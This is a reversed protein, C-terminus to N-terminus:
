AFEPATRVVDPWRCPDDGHQALFAYVWRELGFAICVSHMPSGDHLSVNFARGFFDTHYNLSGVALRGDDPLLLSIEYKTESSLQFYTKALADPAIFFPDSATRMEGAVQHDELFRALREIGQERRTLVEQRGGLFVVERMTFDWLRRLDRMNTSEYRFCKGCVGYTLGEAPVMQDQNLHYVHYCVAPSLCAEPREMDSLARDDLTDRDQHRQRFDDIRAADECLHCTFTVNHPFSRFYDCKALVTTPILTPTLVPQAQWPQGFEEFVRDFYRFLRLPLGSLAAQGTGLFHIGAMTGAGRFVPRELRTSRYVIKRELRRLSRQVKQALTQVQPILSEAADEPADFELSAGQGAFRINSIHKGLFAVQKQIEEQAMDHAPTALPVNCKRLIM